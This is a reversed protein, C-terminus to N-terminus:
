IRRAIERWREQHQTEHNVVDSTIHQSPTCSLVWIVVTSKSAQERAAHDRWAHLCVNSYIGTKGSDHIRGQMHQVVLVACAPALQRATKIWVCQTCIM